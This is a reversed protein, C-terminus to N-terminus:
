KKRKIYENLQSPYFYKRSGVRYHPIQEGNKFWRHLAKPHLSLFDAADKFTMPKEVMMTKLEALRKEVREILVFELRSLEDPTMVILRGETRPESM